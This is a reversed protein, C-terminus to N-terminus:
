RINRIAERGEENQRKLSSHIKSEVWWGILLPSFSLQSAWIYNDDQTSIAEVVPRWVKWEPNLKWRRMM